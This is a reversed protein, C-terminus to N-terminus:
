QVPEQPWGTAKAKGVALDLAISMPDAGESQAARMLDMGLEKKIKGQGTGPIIQELFAAVLQALELYGRVTQLIKLANGM